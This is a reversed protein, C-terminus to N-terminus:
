RICLSISTHQIIEMVAFQDDSSFLHCVKYTCNLLNEVRVSWKRSMSNVTKEELSEGMDGCQNLM